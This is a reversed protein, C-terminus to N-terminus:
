AKARKAPKPFCWLVQYDRSRPQPAGGIHLYNQMSEGGHSDNDYTRVPVIKRWNNDSFGHRLRPSSSLGRMPM